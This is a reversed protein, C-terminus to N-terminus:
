GHRAETAASGFAEFRDGALAMLEPVAQVYWYTDALNVHGVYTSLALMANDIDAGDAQWLMLRRCIFTHRLDHIRLSRHGGRPVIGLDATLRMWAQRVATYRLAEGDREDLFLPTAPGVNGLKARVRLYARLAATATPHLPVLRTRDFKSHRVTLQITDSDLDGCRLALAESIRLGTAALLGLLAPMTVPGASHGPSLGRAAAVIADTEAPTYIHPALRRYSRGFPAGEPFSTEPEADCLHRAFPRLVNVRKAWTFPDAHMAQEKAWRLVIASTLPGDHDSADAFRAFSSTLSGSRDLVFGLRRREALYAEARALMTAAASMRDSGALADCRSIAADRGRARLRGRHCHQPSAARGRGAEDARRHQGVPEGVPPKHRVFVERRTTAPREHVIYDAIAQGVASSLPLVDPRRVKGAAVRVVGQQWDIDDLTLRIAESSRLGLDALCRVIAYGRRPSPCPPEFASFLQQLQAVTLAEPLAADRWFAPRPVAKQLRAVDDGRLERHRLYCRVAGGMVRITSTSWGADGLVFARVMAPTIVALDIPGSGFQTRLLRRIIRCRHDRTGQALGWVEAMSADFTALEQEITNPRPSSAVGHLRLMRMFQNLAARNLVRDRPIPDPCLCAPLHEDLFQGISAADIASPGEGIIQLWDGFHLVCAMSRRGRKPCYRGAARHEEYLKMFPWLMNDPAHVRLQLRFPTPM